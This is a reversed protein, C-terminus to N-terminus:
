SDSLTDRKAAPVFDNTMIEVVLLTCKSNNLDVGIVFEDFTRTFFIESSSNDFHFSLIDERSLNDTNSPFISISINDNSSKARIM